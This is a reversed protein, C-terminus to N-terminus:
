ESRYIRARFPEGVHSLYVAITIWCPTFSCVGAACFTQRVVRVREAVRRLRREDEAEFPVRLLERFLAEADPRELLDEFRFDRSTFPLAAAFRYMALIRFIRFYDPRAWVALAWPGATIATGSSM